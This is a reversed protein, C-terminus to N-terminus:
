NKWDKAQTEKVCDWLQTPPPSRLRMISLRINKNDKSQWNFWGAKKVAIHEAESHVIGRGILKGSQNGKIDEFADSFLEQKTGVLSEPSTEFERLGLEWNSFRVWHRWKWKKCFWKHGTFFGDGEFYPPSVYVFMRGDSTEWGHAPKRPQLRRRRWSSYLNGPYKTTGVVAIEKVHWRWM